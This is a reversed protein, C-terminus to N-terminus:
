QFLSNSIICTKKEMVNNFKILTLKSLNESLENIKICVNPVSSWYKGCAIKEVTYSNGHFGGQTWTTVLNTLIIAVNHEVAIYRLINALHNLINNNEDRDTSSAFLVSLSHIVIVRLSLGQELEQKIAFMASILEYKDTIHRILIRNLLLLTQEETKIQSLKTRMCKASFDRKTDLFYVVNESNNACLVHALITLILELKKSDAPGCIEYITGTLLGGKLLEDLNTIGTSILASNSLIKHYRTLANIPPASFHKAVYKKIEIIEPYTLSTYRELAKNETKLFDLVTHIDRKKLLQINNETLLRHTNTTLM